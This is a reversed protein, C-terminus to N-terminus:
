VCLVKRKLAFIMANLRLRKRKIAINNAIWRLRKRKFAFIIAILRLLFFKKRWVPRLPSGYVTKYNHVNKTWCSNLFVKCNKVYRYLYTKPTSCTIGKLPWINLFFFVHLLHMKILNKNQIVKRKYKTRITQIKIKQLRMVLKPKGDKSGVHIM